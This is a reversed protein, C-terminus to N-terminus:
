ERWRNGLVLVLVLAGGLLAWRVVWGGGGGGGDFVM